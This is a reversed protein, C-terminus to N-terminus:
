TRSPPTRRPPPACTGPSTPPPDSANARFANTPAAADGAWVLKDIARETGPPGLIVDYQGSYILVDYNDLLTQLMPVVGVVWDGLLQDEVTQNFIAYPVGGVHLAKPDGADRAM